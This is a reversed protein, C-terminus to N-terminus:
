QRNYFPYTVITRIGPPRRATYTIRLRAFQGSIVRDLKVTVPYSHFKGAACSPECDNIEQIGTALAVTTSWVTWKLHELINGGDACAIMIFDPKTEHDGCNSITVLKPVAAAVPAFYVIVTAFAIM